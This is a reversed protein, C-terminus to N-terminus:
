PQKLLLLVTSLWFRPYNKMLLRIQFILPNQRAILVKTTQPVEIGAMTAIKYASQGVIDANLKGDKFILKKLKNKDADNLFACGRDIFEQKVKEYIPEEVIVAQESACIVGNDFTKSMIVSSVAMKINATTDIVVPTNGAGVGIAPNGSSYAAKVM